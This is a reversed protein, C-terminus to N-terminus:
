SQFRILAVAEDFLELLQKQGDTAVWAHIVVRLMSFVVTPYLEAALSATEPFAARGSLVQSVKESLAASMEHKRASIGSSSAIVREITLYFDAREQYLKLLERACALLSLHAAEGTPRNDLCSLFIAMGDEVWSVIVDEKTPFYRLVTRPSIDVAAAIQNITTDAFGQRGILVLAAELIQRRTQDKKRERLGM